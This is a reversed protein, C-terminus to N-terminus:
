GNAAHVTYCVRVSANYPNRNSSNKSNYKANNYSPCFAKSGYRSSNQSSCGNHYYNSSYDSGDDWTYNGSNDSSYRSSNDTTWNGSDASRETQSNASTCGRRSGCDMSYNSSNDGTCTGQQKYCSNSNDDSSCDSSYYGSHNSSNDTSWRSANHKDCTNSNYQSGNNGTCGTGDGSYSTTTQSANVSACYSSNRSSYVTTCAVISSDKSSDYSSDDSSYVVANRTSCNVQNYMTNLLTRIENVSAASIPEGKVADKSTWTFAM